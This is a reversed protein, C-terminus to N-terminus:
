LYNRSLFLAETVGNVRAGKKITFEPSDGALVAWNVPENIKMDIMVVLSVGCVFAGLTLSIIAQFILKKM